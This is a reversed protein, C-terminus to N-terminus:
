NDERGGDFQFVLVEAGDSGATLCVNAEDGTAFLCDPPLLTRDEFLVSGSMVFYFRNGPTGQTGTRDGAAMRLLSAVAGNTQVPMVQEMTSDRRAALTVLDQATCKGHFNRKEVRLMQDRSEALYLAGSEMCPRLTMYSLGDPGAIVPGYGTHGSAYHFSFPEIPHRGIRGSGAIAIQYQDTLHFHPDLQSHPPQEVIFAQPGPVKGSPSTVLDIRYAIGGGNRMPRALRIVQPDRQSGIRIM